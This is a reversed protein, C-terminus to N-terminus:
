EREKKVFYDLVDQFRRYEISGKTKTKLELATFKEVPVFLKEISPCKKALSQIHVPMEGEIVTYKALQLTNPGIYIRQKFKAPMEAVTKEMAEKVLAPDTKDSKIAV